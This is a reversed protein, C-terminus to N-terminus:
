PKTAMKIQDRAGIIPLSNRLSYFINDINKLLDYCFTNEHLVFHQLQGDGCLICVNWACTLQTYGANIPQEARVPEDEGMVRSLHGDERM